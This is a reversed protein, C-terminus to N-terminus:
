VCKNLIEMIEKYPIKNCNGPIIACSSAIAELNTEKGELLSNLASPVGM